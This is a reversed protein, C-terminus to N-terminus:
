TWPIRWVLISSHTATEKELPDEQGLSQVRPRRRQCAFKKVVSGSPFGGIHAESNAWNNFFEGALLGQLLSLSGVGTKQGPSNWPNYLGHPQLTLCSQAFKVKVKWVNMHTYLCGLHNLLSVDGQWYLLPLFCLHSRQTLSIGRLPLVWTSKGLYDWPSLLRAPKVGHPWFTLCSQTLSCMPLHPPPTTLTHCGVRTDKGPSGWPRLLRIPQLGFPWLSVHSFRSLACVCWCM